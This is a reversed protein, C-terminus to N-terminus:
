KFTDKDGIYLMVRRPGPPAMDKYKFEKVMSDEM